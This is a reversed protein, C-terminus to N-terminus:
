ASKVEYTIEVYRTIIMDEINVDFISALILLNDITPICAGSEWNYIAQANAFGFISQIDRVTYGSQKRLTKIKLATAAMDIVPRNFTRCM